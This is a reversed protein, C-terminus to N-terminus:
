EPIVAFVDIEVLQDPQILGTVGVATLCPMKELLSPAHQRIYGIYADVTGEGDKWIDKVYITVKVIHELSSGVAELAAKIKNMADEVQAVADNRKTPDVFGTSILRAGAGALFVLNDMSISRSFLAQHGGGFKISSIVKKMEM